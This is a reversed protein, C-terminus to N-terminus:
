RPVGDHDEGWRRIHLSDDVQSRGVHGNGGEVGDDGRAVVNGHDHGPGVLAAPSARRESRAGDLCCRSTVANRHRVADVICELDAGLERDHDREALQDFRMRQGPQREDVQVERQQRAPTARRRNFPRQEGAVLGGADAQHRQLFAQVGARDVAPGLEGDPRALRQSLQAAPQDLDSGGKQEVGQSM